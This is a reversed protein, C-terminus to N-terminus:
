NDKLGVPVADAAKATPNRFCRTRRRFLYQSNSFDNAKSNSTKVVRLIAAIENARLVRHTVGNNSKRITPLAHDIREELSTKEL